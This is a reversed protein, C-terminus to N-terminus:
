VAGLVLNPSTGALLDAPAANQFQTQPLPPKRLALGPNTLVQQQPFSAAIQTLQDGISSSPVPLAPTAPGASSVPATASSASPTNFVTQANTVRNQYGNGAAPNQPTYGQPREFGEFATAAQAPTAAGQLANFTPAETTHLERDIYAIQTPLAAPDLSNAKAYNRFATARDNHWQAVGISTGNDGIAKTDLGAGSEQMLNGVIGSAQVPSYGRQQLLQFAQAVNPILQPM